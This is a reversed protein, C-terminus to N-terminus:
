NVSVVTGLKNLEIIKSENTHISRIRITDAAANYSSLEGSIGTFIIQSSPFTISDFGLNSGLDVVFNTTNGASYSSGRFLTYRNSEFYIGHDANSGAAGTEGAIAKMQQNRMDTELVALKASLSSKQDADVLNIVAFTLLIGIIGLVLLLEPLTFGKQFITVHSRFIKQFHAHNM